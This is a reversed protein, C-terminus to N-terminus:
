DKEGVIVERLFVVVIEPEWKPFHIGVRLGRNLMALRLTQYTFKMPLRSKEVKLCKGVPLALLADALDDYIRVQESRVNTPLDAVEFKDTM